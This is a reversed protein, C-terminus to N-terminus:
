WAATAVARLMAHGPVANAKRVGDANKSVIPDVDSRGRFGERGAPDCRRVVREFCVEIARGVDESREFV